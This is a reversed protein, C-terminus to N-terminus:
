SVLSKGENLRQKMKWSIKSSGIEDIAYKKILCFTSRGSVVEFWFLVNQLAPTHLMSDAINKHGTIKTLVLIRHISWVLEM